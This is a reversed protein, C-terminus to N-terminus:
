LNDKKKFIVERGDERKSLICSPIGAVDCDINKIDCGFCVAIGDVAVYEVGDKTFSNENDSM